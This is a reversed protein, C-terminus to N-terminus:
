AGERDFTMSDVIGKAIASVHCILWATQLGIPENTLNQLECISGVVADLLCGALDRRHQM